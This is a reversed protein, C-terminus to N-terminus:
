SGTKVLITVSASDQQATCAHHHSTDGTRVGVVYTGAESFSYESQTASSSVRTASTAPTVSWRTAATSATVTVPVGVTTETASATLSVTNSDSASKSCAALSGVALFAFLTKKM